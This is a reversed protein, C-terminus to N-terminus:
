LNEGSFNWSIKMGRSNGKKYVIQRGCIQMWSVGDGLQNEWEWLISGM